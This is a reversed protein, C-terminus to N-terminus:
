LKLKDPCKDESELKEELLKLERRVEEQQKLNDTKTFEQVLIRITKQNIYTYTNYKKFKISEDIRELNEWLKEVEEDTRKMNKEEFEPYIKEYTIRSIFKDYHFPSLLVLLIVELLLICYYLLFVNPLIEIINGIIVIITSVTFLTGWTKSFSSYKKIKYNILKQFEDKSISIEKREFKLSNISFVSLCLSIVIVSSSTILKMITSPISFIIISFIKTSILMTWCVFLCISIVGTVGFEALNDKEVSYIKNTKFDYYLYPKAKKSDRLQLTIRYPM